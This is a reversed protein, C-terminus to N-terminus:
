ESKIRDLTVNDEGEELEWMTNKHEIITTKSTIEAAFPNGPDIAPSNYSTKSLLQTQSTMMKSNYGAERSMSRPFFIFLTMISSVMCGIGGMVALLDVWLSFVLLVKCFKGSRSTRAPM